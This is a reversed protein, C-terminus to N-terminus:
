FSTEMRLGFVVADDRGEAPDFIFQLDPQLTLWPTIAAQWTIELITESDSFANGGTRVNRLFDDSFDTYSIGIGFLDDSRVPLVNIFTLGADFYFGVTNRDKQPSHGLRLFASVGPENEANLALAQDAVFYFSYNNEVITGFNFDEFEGTHYFGGIKYEGPLSGLTVSAGGEFFFAYGDSDNLKYEFGKHNIEEEGANGDYLGFQLYTNQTAQFRSWIGLAGLPFIPAPINASETPLPGFASNLFLLANESVMFDDDAAIQGIRFTARGGAWEQQYWAQFLRVTNYATINSLTNFDGVLKGSPDEGMIWFAGLHVEGKLASLEELDLGVGFDLLGEWTTGTRNGGNLNSFMEGVYTAYPKFGGTSWRERQDFALAYDAQAFVPFIASAASALVHRITGSPPM